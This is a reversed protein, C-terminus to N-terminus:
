PLRDRCIRRDASSRRLRPSVRTTTAVAESSSPMSTPVTSRAHWIPEGRAIVVQRCRTPRDPWQIPACGFPRSKAVVRSSSISHAASTRAIRAPTSSRM